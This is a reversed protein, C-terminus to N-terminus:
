PREASPAFVIVIVAQAPLLVVEKDRGAAEEAAAEVVEARAEVRERDRLRMVPAIRNGM